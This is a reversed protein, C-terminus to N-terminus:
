GMAAIEFLVLVRFFSTTLVTFCMRILHLGSLCMKAAIQPLGSLPKQPQICIEPDM